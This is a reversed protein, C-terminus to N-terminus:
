KRYKWHSLGLNKFQIIAQQRVPTPIDKQAAIDFLAAYFGHVNVMQRFREESAQIESPNQSSATAIVHLLENPNIAEEVSGNM